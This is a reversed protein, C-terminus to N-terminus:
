ANPTDPLEAGGGWAEPADLDADPLGGYQGYNNLHWQEGLMPDNPLASLLCREELPECRLSRSGFAHRRTRTSRNSRASRSHNLPKQLTPVFM